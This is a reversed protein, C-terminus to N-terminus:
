CASATRGVSYQSEYKFCCHGCNGNSNNLKEFCSACPKPEAAAQPNNASTKARKQLFEYMKRAGRCFEKWENKGMKEPILLIDIINECYASQENTM